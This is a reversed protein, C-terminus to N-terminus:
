GPASHALSIVISNYAQKGNAPLLTMEFCL